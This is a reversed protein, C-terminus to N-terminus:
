KTTKAYWFGVRVDNYNLHRPNYSDILYRGRMFDGSFYVNKPLWSPRFRVGPGFEASNAWGQRQTDMVVNANMLLQLTNGEGLPLTRGARNQSYFLWDKGFRSVYVADATTEYYFGAKSSGALSGFGKAYNVGGRYDPLAAGVNKLDLYKISEGAEVWGTLRHWTKSAAGAAVIFASESLYQPSGVDHGILGSKIDGTFRTSVYFSVFKNVEGLGPIPITRKIQSYTFLDHWRTSFLPLAWVTTQALPDGNLNHFAKNAESAIQKDEAHRAKDFWVKAENDRKAANYAWGLKLMVESDKPNQELAQLFYKIADNNYGAALSKLGMAKPDSSSSGSPVAASPHPIDEPRTKFGRLANLQERAPWDRPNTTLILEFQEIAKAKDNMALYLYALERRLTANHADLKLASLFEYPYPYRAGYLELAQEATRSESSRSAALLAAQAEEGRDMQRWVRALPLLLEAMQPKLERCIEYEKAALPLDDRLEALQALEWHVSFMSLDNPKPSQALAQSWRAIGAALPQDINQFATEATQRTSVTASKRLKDFMRRAEIPQQTEFALFAFELAASEDQPNLKLAAAFEDRAAANEGTKLLTYALDKHIGANAPQLAIGKQFSEIATDYDKKQLAEYAKTLEKQGPPGQGLLLGACIFILIALLVFARLRSLM